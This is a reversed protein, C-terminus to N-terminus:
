MITDVITNLEFSSCMKLDTKLKLSTLLYSKSTTVSSVEIDNLKVSLEIVDNCLLLNKM